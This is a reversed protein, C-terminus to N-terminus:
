RRKSFGGGKRAKPAGNGSLRLETSVTSTETVVVGDRFRQHTQTVRVGALTGRVRERVTVTRSILEGQDFVELIIERGHDRDTTQRVLSEDHHESIVIIKM